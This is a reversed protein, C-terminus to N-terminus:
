DGAPYLISTRLETIQEAIAMWSNRSAERTMEKSRQGEMTSIIQRIVALREATEGSVSTTVDLGDFAEFLKVIMKQWEAGSQQRMGERLKSEPDNRTMQFFHGLVYSTEITFGFLGEVLYDATQPSSMMAPVNNVYDTALQELLLQVNVLEPEAAAKKLTKFFDDSIDAYSRLDLKNQIEDLTRICDSLDQRQMFSAAYIADFLKLGAYQRLGEDDLTDVLDNPALLSPQYTVGYETLRRFLDFQSHIKDKVLLGQVEASVQELSKSAAATAVEEGRVSVGAMMVAALGIMMCASKM